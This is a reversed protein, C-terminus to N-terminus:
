TTFANKWAAAKIARKVALFRKRHTLLEFWFAQERLLLLLDENGENKTLMSYLCKPGSLVVKATLYFFYGAYTKMCRGRIGKVRGTAKLYQQMVLDARGFARFLKKFYPWTLRGAPM